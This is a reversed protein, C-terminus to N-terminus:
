APSLIAAASAGVAIGCVRGLERMSGVEVIELGQDRAAALVSEVVRRDADKAVFVAQARGKGIAKATQSSGVAKFEAARLRDIAEAPQTM